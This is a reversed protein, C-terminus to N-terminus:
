AAKRVQNRDCVREAIELVRDFESWKPVVIRLTFERILQELKRDFEDLSMNAGRARPKCGPRRM